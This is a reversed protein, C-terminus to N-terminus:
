GEAGRRFLCFFGLWRRLRSRRKGKDNEREGEAVKAAPERTATIPEAPTPKEDTPPSETPLPSAPKEEEAPVSVSPNSPTPTTPPTLSETPPIDASNDTPEETTDADTPEQPPSAVSPTSSKTTSEEMETPLATSDRPSMPTPPQVVPEAAPIDINNTTPEETIDADTPEQPPPPATSPTPLTSTPPLILPAVSPTSNNTTSEEMETPLATSGRSSTPTPPQVIPEAPVVTAAATSEEGEVPPRIPLTLPELPSDNAGTPGEEPGILSSVDPEVPGRLPFSAEKLSSPSPPADLDSGLESHLFSGDDSCADDGDDGDDGDGGYESLSQLSSATSPREGSASLARPTTTPLLMFPNFATPVPAAVKNTSGEKASLPSSAPLSPPRSPAPTSLAPPMTTPLLMFPNFATPVPAAVKNTSGEKTPLPSSAPLNLPRPPTSIVFISPDQSTDTSDSPRKVSPFPSALAPTTAPNASGSPESPAGGDNSGNGNSEKVMASREKEQMKEVMEVRRLIAEIEDGLRKMREEEREERKAAEIEDTLRSAEKKLRRIKKNLRETKKKVEKTEVVLLMDEVMWLWEWVIDSAMARHRYCLAMPALYELELRLQIRSLPEAGIDHIMSRVIRSTERSKRYYCIPSSNNCFNADLSFTIFPDFRPLSRHNLLEVSDLWYNVARNPKQRCQRCLVASAVRSFRRKLDRERLPHTDAIKELLEGLKEREERRNMRPVRNGCQRGLSSSYRPCTFNRVTLDVDLIRYPDLILGM